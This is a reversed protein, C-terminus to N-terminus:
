GGTARRVDKGSFQLLVKLDSFSTARITAAM